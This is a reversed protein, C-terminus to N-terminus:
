VVFTKEESGLLLSCKTKNYLAKCSFIRKVQLLCGEFDWDRCHPRVPGHSDMVSSLVAEVVSSPRLVSVSNDISKIVLSTSLTHPDGGATFLLWWFM